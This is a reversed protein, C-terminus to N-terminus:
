CQNYLFFIWSMYHIFNIAHRIFILKKEPLTTMHFTM